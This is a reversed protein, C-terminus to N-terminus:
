CKGDEKKRLEIGATTMKLRKILLTKRKYPFGPQEPPLDFPVSKEVPFKEFFFLIVKLPIGRKENKGFNDSFGTGGAADM